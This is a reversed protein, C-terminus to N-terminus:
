YEHTLGSKLISKYEESTVAKYYYISNSNINSNLCNVIKAAYYEDCNDCVLVPLTWDLNLNSIGIIKYKTM